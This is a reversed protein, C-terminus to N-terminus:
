TDRAATAAIAGGGGLPMVLEGTEPDYRPRERPVDEDTPPPADEPDVPGRLDIETGDSLVRGPYYIHALKHLDMCKGPVSREGLRYTGDTEIQDMDSLQPVDVLLGCKPCQVALAAQDDALELVHKCRCPVQIM